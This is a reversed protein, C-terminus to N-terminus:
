LQAAIEAVAENFAGTTLSAGGTVALDLESIPQGIVVEEYANDFREQHPNSYGEGGDFVIDADTIIGAENIVLTVDINHETRAPTLYDASVTFTDGTVAEAPTDPVDITTDAVVSTADEDTADATDTRAITETQTTTDNPTTATDGSFFFAGVGVIAVLAVLVIAIPM